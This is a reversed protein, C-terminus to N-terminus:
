NCIGNLFRFSQRAHLSSLRGVSYNLKDHLSQQVEDSWGVGIKYTIHHGPLGNKHYLNIDLSLSKYGFEGM